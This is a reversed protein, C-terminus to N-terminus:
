TVPEFSDELLEQAAQVFAQESADAIDVKRAQALGPYHSVISRTYAPDYHQALLEAVLLDWEAAAALTKWRSIVEHGHLQVLCDLQRISTIFRRQEM